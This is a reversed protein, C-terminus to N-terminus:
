IATSMENILGYKNPTLSKFPFAIKMRCTNKEVKNSGKTLTRIIFNSPNMEENSISSLFSRMPGKITEM